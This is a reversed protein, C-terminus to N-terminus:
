DTLYQRLWEDLFLLLWVPGPVGQKILGAIADANFYEHLPSSANLLREEITNRYSGNPGFWVEIPVGFGTKKRFAFDKPYRQALLEKLLKKGAHTGDPQQYMNHSQPIRRVTEWFTVDLLPTRVELGHMMSAIDVKTLIAHPLYTKRDVYQMKQVSEFSDTKAYADEFLQLRSQKVHAYDQKWLSSRWNADCYQMLQLWGELTQHSPNDLWTGYTNYGAFAEDGGDGSLVMPVHKRALQSVYYTPIASSDGFPEGYHRVVDPLIGLADPLVVEEHHNTREQKAVVRAYSLENFEKEQFGISFTHVPDPLLQSMHSVVTASDAGGSLYAGFPVDSVLHTEVTEEVASELQTLWAEHSLSEDPTFPCDWYQEPESIEGTFSVTMRCAPPLKYVRKFVTSPAPIYQLWLYQDVAELNLARPFVDITKLAQLESAAAFCGAWNMYYLPKIGFQDRALFLVQKSLDAICFAFMGRLKHVCNEGWQKYAALIVETDSNTNFVHGKAKLQQQLNKYNYIEGNFTIVCEKSAYRMPQAGMAPDIISLRRHGLGVNKHLWIGEGDPGRHRLADNMRQVESEQIVRDQRLIISIGCVPSLTYESTDSSCM